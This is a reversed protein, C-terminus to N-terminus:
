TSLIPIGDQNGHVEHFVTFPEKCEPCVAVEIDRLRLGGGAKTVYCRRTVNCGPHRFKWLDSNSHLAELKRM